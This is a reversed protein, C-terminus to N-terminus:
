CMAFVLVRVPFKYLCDNSSITTDESLSEALDQCREDGLQCGDM